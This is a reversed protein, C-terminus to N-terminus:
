SILLLYIGIKENIVRKIQDRTKPTINEPSRLIWARGLDLVYSVWQTYEVGKEKSEKYEELVQQWKKKLGAPM